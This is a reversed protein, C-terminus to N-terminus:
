APHGKGSYLMNGIEDLELAEKREAERRFRQELKERHKNLIEVERSCKALHRQALDVQEKCDEIFLQQAFVADKASEVEFNVSQLHERRQSIEVGSIAEGGSSHLLNRRLLEKKNVLAQESERLQELKESAHQLQKQKHGLVEEAQEKLHIKQDLLPQLRYKFTM